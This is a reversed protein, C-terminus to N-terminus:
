KVGFGYILMKSMLHPADKYPVTQNARLIKRGEESRAFAVFERVHASPQPSTVLYLPRYLGYNGKQVNEYTPAKGDFGIIKVNRKRASSIGTIGVALPDSEVAKELPGSSKVVYDTVFETASDQFIYQRITYGVGSYKGQRVYLHIPADPGGLESWNKIQGLYMAKIQETTINNVPNQKHIIIALADWAVPHLSAHLESREIGPLNMRCSGGLDVKLAAADRIGRTAGGGQLEVKVGTKTEFAQALEAMFAKKTIGCGAWRILNDDKAPNVSAAAANASLALASFLAVIFHKNNCWM